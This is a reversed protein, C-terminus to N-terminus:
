CRGRSRLLSFTFLAYLELRKNGVYDRDDVMKARRLEEAQRTKEALEATTEQARTRAAELAERRAKADAEAQEYAAKASQFKTHAENARATAKNNATLAKSEDKSAQKQVAQLKSLEKLFASLNQKQAKGEAKIVKTLRKADKM